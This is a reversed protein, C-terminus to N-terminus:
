QFRDRSPLYIRELSENSCFAGVRIIELKSCEVDELAPCECFAFEEVEKIGPMILRRLRPCNGFADREIKLVGDQCEVEEINAHGCFAGAHVRQAIVTIHTAEQPIPESTAGTYVYRFINNVGEAAM